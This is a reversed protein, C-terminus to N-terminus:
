PFFLATKPIELVLGGQFKSVSQFPRKPSLLNNYEHSLNIVAAHYYPYVAVDYSSFVYASDPPIWRYAEKQERGEM